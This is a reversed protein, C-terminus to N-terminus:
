FDELESDEDLMADIVGHKEAKDFFFRELPDTVSFDRLELQPLKKCEEAFDDFTRIPNSRSM